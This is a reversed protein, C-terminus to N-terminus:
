FGEIWYSRNIEYEDIVFGDINENFGSLTKFKDVVKQAEKIDDFVGILKVNELKTEHQVLYVSKM